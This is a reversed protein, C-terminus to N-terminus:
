CFEKLVKRPKKVRTGGSTRKSGVRAKGYYEDFLLGAMELKELPEFNALLGIHFKSNWLLSLAQHGDTAVLVMQGCSPLFRCSGAIPKTLRWWSNRIPKLAPIRLTEWLETLNNFIPQITQREELANWNSTGYDAKNPSIFKMANLLKPNIGRKSDPGVAQITSISGTM